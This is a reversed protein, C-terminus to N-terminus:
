TDYFLNWEAFVQIDDLMRELEELEGDEDSWDSDVSCTSQISASSDTRKLMSIRRGRPTSPRQKNANTLSLSTQEELQSQQKTNTSSNAKVSAADEEEAEEEIVKLDDGVRFTEAGITVRRSQEGGENLNQKELFRRNAPSLM